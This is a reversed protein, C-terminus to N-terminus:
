SISVTLTNIRQNLFYRKEATNYSRSVKVNDRLVYITDVILCFIRKEDLFFGINM